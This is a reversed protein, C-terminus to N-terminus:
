QDIMSMTALLQFRTELKFSFEREITSLRTELDLTGGRLFHFRISIVKLKSKFFRLSSSNVYKRNIKFSRFKWNGQLIKTQPTVM